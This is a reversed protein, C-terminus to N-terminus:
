LEARVLEVKGTVTDLRCRLTVEYAFREIRAELDDPLDIGHEEKVLRRISEFRESGEATDHVYYDFEVTPPTVLDLVESLTRPLRSLGHETIDVKITPIDLGMMRIVEEPEFSHGEEILRGDEGYVGVWDEAADVITIRQM